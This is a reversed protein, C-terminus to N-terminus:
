EASTEKPKGYIGDADPAGFKKRLLEEENPVSVGDGTETVCEDGGDLPRHVVGM